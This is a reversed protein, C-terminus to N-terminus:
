EGHAKTLILKGSRTRSLRYLQDHFEIFVDTTGCSLESFSVPNLMDGKRHAECRVVKAKTSCQDQNIEPIENSPFNM